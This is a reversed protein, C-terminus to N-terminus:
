QGSLSSLSFFICLLVCVLIESDCGGRSHLLRHVSSCSSRSSVLVCYESAHVCNWGGKQKRFVKEADGLVGVWLRATAHRRVKNCRMANSIFDAHLWVRCTSFDM